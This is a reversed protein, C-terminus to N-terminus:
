RCCLLKQYTRGELITVYTYPKGALSGVGLARVIELFQRDNIQGGKKFDFLMFADILM